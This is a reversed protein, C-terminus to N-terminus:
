TRKRGYKIKTWIHLSKKSSSKCVGLFWHFKSLEQFIIPKLADSIKTDKIDLDIIQLGNWMLYASDGIPRNNGSTPWVVKRQIKDVNKYNKDNM